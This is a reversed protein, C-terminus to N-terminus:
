ASRIKSGIDASVYANHMIFDGYATAGLKKKIKATVVNNDYSPPFFLHFFMKKIARFRLKEAKSLVENRGVFVRWVVCHRIRLLSIKVLRKLARKLQYEFYSSLLFIPFFRLVTNSKTQPTKLNKFYIFDIYIFLEGMKLFTVFNYKYAKAPVGPCKMWIFFCFRRVFPVYPIELYVNCNLKRKKWRSIASKTCTYQFGYIAGFMTLFM